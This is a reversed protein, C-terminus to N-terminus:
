PQLAGTLAGIGAAGAYANAGPILAAPLMVAVNGVVNGVKGGTTSSLGADLARSDKVDERSVAGFAQGVGRALNTMAQGVGSLFPGSAEAADRQLAQRQTDFDVMGAFKAMPIDPYFQKRVGILLQEDSLDAYMPFKARIESLKVVPAAM